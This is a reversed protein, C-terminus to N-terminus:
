PIARSDAVFWKGVSAGLLPKSGEGVEDMRDPVSGGNKATATAIYIARVQERTMQRAEVVEFGGACSARCEGSRMLRNTATNLLDALAGPEDTADLRVRVFFEAYQASM